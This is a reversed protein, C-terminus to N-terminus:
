VEDEWDEDEEFEKGLIERATDLIGNADLKYHAYLDEPYGVESFVDPVGLKNFACGKGSRAIVDAVADGL